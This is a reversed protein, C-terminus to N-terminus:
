RPLCRIYCKHIFRHWRLTAFIKSFISASSSLLDVGVRPQMLAHGSVVRGNEVVPTNLVHEMAGILELGSNLVLNTDSDLTIVYKIVPLLSIQELISNYKFDNTEPNLLFENFQILLGRKREWGLYCSQSSNWKRKRYLFHFRNFGEEAQYKMNLKQIQERGADIIEKDYSEDQCKGSTVDGLIAFYINESKNALYYVELKRALEEVKQRDKLITPIVVFTASEPPIGNSFDLKPIRKPKVTKGLLYVLGQTIIETLPLYLFVSVLTCFFIKQSKIYFLIFLLFCLYLPLIINVAMYLKAKTGKTMEKNKIELKKYLSNVDELLFYGIHSKKQQIKQSNENKELDEKEKENRAMELLTKAIYLESVNSKRAIEQIKNQYDSQTKYDMKSYIGSPDQKLIEEVGGIQKAIDGFDMRSIEKISTILNGMSVKNVALSFHVQKIVEGVTTGMKNVQEELIQLYPIGKKGHSKLKYSLYEIFAYSMANNEHKVYRVQKNFNQKIKEKKEVLREIISEAKYKQIQAIYIKDCIERINQLGAIQLFIPLSWIEEMTLNKQSQYANLFLKLNEEEIKGDTYAMIESALVYIRAFGKYKGNGIGILNKYKTLTLDKEIEKTTEEIIYFNDLLWEGAPDITIKLKAHENLLQYTNSIIGFNEKLSKIPYTDADSYSRVIQESALKELYGCLRSKDIIAGKISLVKSMSKKLIKGRRLNTKYM